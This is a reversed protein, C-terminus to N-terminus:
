SHNSLVYWAHLATAAATKDNYIRLYQTPVDTYTMSFYSVTSGTPVFLSAYDPTPYVGDTGGGLQSGTASQCLAIHLRCSTSTVYGFVTVNKYRVNGSVM